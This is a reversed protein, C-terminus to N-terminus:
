EGEISKIFLEKGQIIELDTSHCINCSFLNEKVQFDNGCNLCKMMVPVIEIELEAGEAVSNRVTERFAFEFIDPVIQILQGFIINVKIVKSLNKDLATDLVIASLDEAIRLEHM